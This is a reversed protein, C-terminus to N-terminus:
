VVKDRKLTSKGVNSTTIVREINYALAFLVFIDFFGMAESFLVLAISLIGLSLIKAAEDERYEYLKNFVIYVIGGFALLSILGGELVLQIFQNHASYYLGTRPSFILNVSEAVGYGMLPRDKIMEIATNWLQIRGSFTIDRGLLQYLLDAFQDQINFLIISFFMIIYFVLYSKINFILTNRFLFPMVFYIIIPIWAIINSASGAHFIMWTCIIFTIILQKKSYKNQFYKDRIIMLVITLIYLPALQNRHRMFFITREISHYGDPSMVMAIFNILTLFGLVTTFAEILQKPNDKIGLEIFLCIALVPYVETILKSISGNNVITSLTKIFYFILTMIIFKSLRGKFIYLLFVLIFVLRLGNLYIFNVVSIEFFTFYYPKFFVIIAILFLLYYINIKRSM